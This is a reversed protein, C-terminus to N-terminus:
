HLRNPVIAVAPQGSHTFCIGLASIRSDVCRMDLLVKLASFDLRHM